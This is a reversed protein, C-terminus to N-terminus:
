KIATLEPYISLFIERVEEHSEDFWIELLNSMSEENIDVLYLSDFNQNWFLGQEVAYEIFYGSQGPMCDALERIFDAWNATELFNEIPDKVEPLVKTLISATFQTQLKAITKRGIPSFWWEEYKEFQESSLDNSELLEEWEEEGVSKRDISWNASALAFIVPLISIFKEQNNM